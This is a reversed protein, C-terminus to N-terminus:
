AVSIESMVKHGSSVALYLTGRTASKHWELVLSLSVTTLTVALIQPYEILSLSHHLFCRFCVRTICWFTDQPLDIRFDSYWFKDLSHYWIPVVFCEHMLKMRWKRSNSVINGGPIGIPVPLAMFRGNWIWHALGFWIRPMPHTVALFCCWHNAYPYSSPKHEFAFFKVTLCLHFLETAMLQLSGWLRWLEYRLKWKFRTASSSISGDLELSKYWPSFSGKAWFGIGYPINLAIVTWQDM